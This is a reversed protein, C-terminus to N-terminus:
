GVADQKEQQLTDLFAKGHKSDPEMYNGEGWENWSKLFAVKFPESKQSMTAFVNRVHEAFAIPDSNAFLMGRRGSRPTHDWNPIITPFVRESCEEQQTLYGLM